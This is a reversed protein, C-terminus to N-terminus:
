GLAVGCAEEAIPQLPRKSESGFPLIAIRCVVTMASADATLRWPCLGIYSWTVSAVLDTGHSATTRSLLTIYLLHSTGGSIMATPIAETKEKTTSELRQTQIVARMEIEGHRRRDPVVIGFRIDVALMDFSGRRLLLKVRM